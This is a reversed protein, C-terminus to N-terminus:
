QWSIVDDSANSGNKYMKNGKDGIQGDKGFSFVAAGTQPGKTAGAFDTYPITNLQNDYDGDIAVCYMTGWPDYFAGLTGGGGTEAFGSKPATPNTASKGEFFGIRRPNYKHDANIGTSKARLINFLDSNDKSAGGATDGVIYDTSSATGTANPYKSYETNYAKVAAVINACATKAEAKKAQDKVVGIAPFLLGMLIAIIAIVTLLEVLTFAHTQSRNQPRSNM